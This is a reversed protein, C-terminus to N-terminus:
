GKLDAYVEGPSLPRFSPTLLSVGFKTKELIYCVLFLGGGKKSNTQEENKCFSRLFIRCIACFEFSVNNSLCVDFSSFRAVHELCLGKLVSFFRSCVFFPLVWFTTRWLRREQRSSPSVEQWLNVPLWRGLLLLQSLPRWYGLLM